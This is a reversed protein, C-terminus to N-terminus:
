EVVGVANGRCEAQCLLSAGIAHCRENSARPWLAGGGAILSADACALAPSHEYAM